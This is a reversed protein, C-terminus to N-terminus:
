MLAPAAGIQGVIEHKMKDEKVHLVCVSLDGTIRLVGKLGVKFFFIFIHGDQFSCDKQGGEVQRRNM